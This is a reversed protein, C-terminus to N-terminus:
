AGGKRPAAYLNTGEPLPGNTWEITYRSMHVEAVTAVPDAPSTTPAPHAFLQTGIAASQMFSLSADIRKHPKTEQSYLEPDYWLVEAVAEGSNPQCTSPAALQFVAHLGDIFKGCSTFAALLEADTPKHM